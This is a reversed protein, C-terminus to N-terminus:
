STPQTGPKGIGREHLFEDIVSRDDKSEYSEEVRAKIESQELDFKALALEAELHKVKNRLKGNWAVLLAPLLAELFSFIKLGLQLWTVSSKM